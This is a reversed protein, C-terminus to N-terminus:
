PSPRGLAPVFFFEEQSPRDAIRDMAAWVAIPGAGHVVFKTRREGDSNPLARLGLEDELRLLLLGVEVEGDLVGPRCFLHTESRCPKM